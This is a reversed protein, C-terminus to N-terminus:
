LIEPEDSSKLISLTFRSIKDFINNHLAKEIKNNIIILLGSRLKKASFTLNYLKIVINNLLTNNNERGLKKNPKIEGYAAFNFNIVNFFDPSVMPFNYAIDVIPLITPVKAAPKKNIGKKPVNLVRERIV